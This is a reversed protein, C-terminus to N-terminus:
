SFMETDSSVDIMALVQTYSRILTQIEYLVLYCYDYYSASELAKAFCSLFYIGFSGEFQEIFTGVGIRLLFNTILEHNTM